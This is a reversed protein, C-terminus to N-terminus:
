KRAEWSGDAQIAPAVDRGFVVFVPCVKQALVKITVSGLFFRSIGSRGHTTMVIADVQLKAAMESIVTAPYGVVARRDYVIDDDIHAHAFGELYHEAIPLLEQGDPPLVPALYAYGPQEAPVVVSLLSIRGEPAIIDKAYELAEEALKSGDLPVLLHQLM